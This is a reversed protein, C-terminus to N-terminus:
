LNTGTSYIETDVAIMHEFTAQAAGVIADQEEHSLSLENVITRFQAWLVPQQDGYPDLYNTGQRDSFQYSRRLAMAIYRAGNTSGEFVYLFGLLAIPNAAATEKIANILAKTAPLATVAAPDRGLFRLDALARPEHFREDGLLPAVRPDAERLVRMQAELARHVLLRQAVYEIYHPLPLQGSILARELPQSEAVKHAPMTETKLREMLSMTTM